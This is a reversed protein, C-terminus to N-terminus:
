GGAGAGGVGADGDGVGGPLSRPSMHPIARPTKPATGWQADAAIERLVELFTVGHQPQIDEGGSMIRGDEGKAIASGGDKEWLASHSPAGAGSATYEDDLGLMHGAEHVSARQQGGPKNVTNIDNSDFTAGVAGGGGLWSPMNSSWWSPVDVSSTRFEGPPIKTVTCHFHPDDDSESVSVTTRATLDEWWDKQSHFTHNGSWKSSVQNMFTTKWSTKAEETWVLSEAPARPYDTQAGDTFTFKCRVAITLTGPVWEADFRGLGTSPTHDEVKHEEALFALRDALADTYDAQEEATAEQRQIVGSPASMMRAVQRAFSANGQAGFLEHVPRESPAAVAEAPERAIAEEATQREHAM